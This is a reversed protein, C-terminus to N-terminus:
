EQGGYKENRGEMNKSTKVRRWSSRHIGLPFNSNWPIEISLLEMKSKLEISIGVKKQPIGVSILLNRIKLTRVV